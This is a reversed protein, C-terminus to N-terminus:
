DLSSTLFPGTSQVSLHRVFQSGSLLGPSGSPKGSQWLCMPRWPLAVGEEDAKAASDALLMAKLESLQGAGLVGFLM